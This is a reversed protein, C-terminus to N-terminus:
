FSLPPALEAFLVDLRGQSLHPQGKEFRVDVELDDPLEERPHTLPGDALLHELAKRRGLLHDLDDVLLEGRM